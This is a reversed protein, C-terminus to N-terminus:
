GFATGCRSWSASIWGFYSKGEGYVRPVAWRLLGLLTLVVIVTGLNTALSSLFIILDGHKNAKVGEVAAATSNQLLGSGELLLRAWDESSLEGLPAKADEFDFPAVAQSRQLLSAAQWPGCAM